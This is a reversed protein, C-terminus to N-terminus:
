DLRRQMELWLAQYCSAAVSKPAFAQVPMRHIGMKEVDSAYPIQAKLLEGHEDPLSKMVDLHMRKRRDVMSFFPMLELGTIRHGELFDLLQRYTRLSLTTPILPLLLGEAARFINESVLSISPPCDLFVYDYAQSLPRLLKLLQKTPNKAEELRLDMNRYSFDAPLMDLNEFDTAKVVEDLDLKGKILRKNSGKVKPKIRFYYTAAAQPDLDWILTRYGETAALHALNVATATKGVGGKINYVGLIHM